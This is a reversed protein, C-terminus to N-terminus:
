NVPINVTTTKKNLTKQFCENPIVKTTKTISLQSMFNRYGEQEMLVIGVQQFQINIM